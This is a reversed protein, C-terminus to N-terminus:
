YFSLILTLRSSNQILQFVGIVRLSITIIVKLLFICKNEPFIPSTAEFSVSKHCYRTINEALSFFEKLYQMQFLALENKVTKLKQVAM